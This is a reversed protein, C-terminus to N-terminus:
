DTKFLQRNTKLEFILKGTRFKNSNRLKQCNRQLTAKGFITKNNIAGHSISKVEKGGVQVVKM